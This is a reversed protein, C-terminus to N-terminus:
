DGAVLLLVGTRIFVKSSQDGHISSM